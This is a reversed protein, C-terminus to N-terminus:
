NELYQSKQSIDNQLLLLIALKFHHRRHSLLLAITFTDCSVALRAMAQVMAIEKESIVDYYIRVEPDISVWETKIPGILFYPHNLIAYGCLLGNRLEDPVYSTTASERCLRLYENWSRDWGELLDSDVVASLVTNEDAQLLTEVASQLDFNLDNDAKDILEKLAVSLDDAGNVHARVAEIFPLRGGRQSLRIAERMWCKSLTALFPQHTKMHKAIVASHFASPRLIDFCHPLLDVGQMQTFYGDSVSRVPISYTMQLRALANVSGFVDELLPLTRNSSAAEQEIFEVLEPFEVRAQDMVLTYMTILQIASIPNIAIEGSSDVLCETQERLIKVFELSHNANSM